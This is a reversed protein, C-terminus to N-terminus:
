SFVCGAVPRKQLPWSQGSKLQGGPAVNNRINLGRKDVLLCQLYLRLEEPVTAVFLEDALLEYLNREQVTRDRRNYKTPVVRIATALNRIIRECQPILVHISAIYDENYHALIGRKLIEIEADQIFPSDGIFKLIDDESVVARKKIENLVLAIFGGYLSLDRALHQIIHGTEDEEISGIRAEVNGDRILATDLLSLLVCDKKIYDCTDKANKVNPKFEAILKTLVEQPSGKCIGDVMKNIDQQSVKIEGSIEKMESKVNKGRNKMERLVREKDEVMGYRDYNNLVKELWGIALLSSAKKSLLEFYTGSKRVMEKAKDVEQKKSHIKALREAAAEAVFPDPHKDNSTDTFANLVKELESIIKDTEEQTLQVNSGDMLDDYLFTWIGIMNYNVIKDYLSFFAKKCRLVLASDNISLSLNLARECYHIAYLSEDYLENEVTDLYAEIARRTVPWGFLSM